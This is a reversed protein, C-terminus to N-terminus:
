KDEDLGDPIYTPRSNPELNYLSRITYIDWPTYYTGGNQTGWFTRNRTNGKWYKTNGNKLTFKWTEYHMVSNYDYPTEFNRSNTKKWSWFLFTYKNKQRITDYQSGSFGPKLMIYLDRDYRQHEHLLGFVHGMEHHFVNANMVYDVNMYLYSRGVKGITAYGDFQLEKKGIRLYPSLGLGHWFVNWSSNDVEEFRMGTGTKIKNIETRFFAKEESTVNGSFFYIIKHNPWKEKTLEYYDSGVAFGRTKSEESDQITELFDVTSLCETGTDLFGDTSQILSPEGVPLDNEDLPQVTIEIPPIAAYQAELDVTIADLGAALEPDAAVLAEIEALEEDTMLTIEETGRTLENNRARLLVREMTNYRPDPARSRSRATQTLALALDLSTNVLERIVPYEPENQAMDQQCSALAIFSFLASILLFKKM